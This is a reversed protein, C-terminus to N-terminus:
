PAPLPTASHAKIKLLLAKANSSIEPDPDTLLATLAPEAPDADGKFSDLERLIARRVSGDPDNLLRNLVPWIITAAYGGRALVRGLLARMNPDPDAELRLLAALAEPHDPALRHLAGVVFRRRPIMSNTSAVILATTGEPHINPLLEAAFYDRHLTTSFLSRQLEPVAPATQHGLALFAYYASEVSAGRRGDGLEWPLYGAYKGLQEELKVMTSEIPTPGMTEMRRLLFPLCNTGMGQIARRAAEAKKEDVVGLKEIRSAELDKLWESLSRGDWSPERPTWSWVALTVLLVPLAVWLLLRRLRPKM